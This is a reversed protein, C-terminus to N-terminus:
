DTSWLDYSLKNQMENLVLKINKVYEFMSLVIIQTKSRINVITM